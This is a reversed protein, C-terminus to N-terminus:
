RNGMKEAWLQLLTKARPATVAAADVTAQVNAPLKEIKQGDSTVVQPRTTAKYSLYQAYAWAIFGPIATIAIGGWNGQVAKLAVAQLDPPMSNYLGIVMSATGFVWGGVDPIRRALWGLAVSSLISM